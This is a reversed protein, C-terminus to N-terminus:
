EKQIKDWHNKRDISDHLCQNCMIKESSAEICNKFEVNNVSHHCIADLFGGECQPNFYKKLCYKQRDTLKDYGKDIASLAIGRHNEDYIRDTTILYNLIIEENSMMYKGRNM